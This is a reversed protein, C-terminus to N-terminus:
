LPRGWCVGMVCGIYLIGLIPTTWTRGSTQASFVQGSCPARPGSAHFASPRTEFVLHQLRAATRSRTRAEWSHPYCRQAAPGHCLGAKGPDSSTRSASARLSAWGAVGTRVLWCKLAQSTIAISRRRRARAVFLSCSGDSAGEGGRRVERLARGTWSSVRRLAPTPGSRRGFGLRSFFSDPLTQAVGGLRVGPWGIRGGQRGDGSGGWLQGVSTGM